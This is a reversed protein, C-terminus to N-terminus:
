PADGAKQVIRFIVFEAPKVMAVGVLCILRGNDIDDQTMTTRDCTAFYASEPTEGALAGDRWLADLFAAVDRRVAKWLPEDNPEFVVWELGRTLSQEIMLGLRRMPVYRWDSAPDSLTRAGWVRFGDTFQRILNVGTTALVDQDADDFAETLQTVGRLAVNAPAKHVGRSADVQAYIGCIHGSPPVAVQEGTVVDPLLIRPAYIAALGSEVQPPLLGGDPERQQMAALDGGTEAMDLVAFRDGRDECHQVLAAHSEADDFGPTAVLRISKEEDLPQLDELSLRELGDAVRLVFLRTGGNDFFGSVATALTCPRDGPLGELHMREFTTYNSFLVPEGVPGKGEEILGVLATTSTGVTSIPRAGGAEEVVYVGPTRYEAM